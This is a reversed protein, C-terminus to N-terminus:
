PVIDAVLQYIDDHFITFPLGFVYKFIIGIGGGLSGLGIRFQLFLLLFGPILLNFFVVLAFSGCETSVAARHRSGSVRGALFAALLTFTRLLALLSPFM